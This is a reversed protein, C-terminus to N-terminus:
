YGLDEMFSIQQKAVLSTRRIFAKLTRLAIWQIIKYIMGNVAIGRMNDINGPKTADKNLCVLRSTTFESPLVAYDNMLSSILRTFNVLFFKYAFPDVKPLKIWEDFVKGPIFDWGVAKSRNLNVIAAKVLDETVKFVDSKSCM